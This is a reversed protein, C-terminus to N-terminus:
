GAGYFAEAHLGTRQRVLEAIRDVEEDELAEVFSEAPRRAVTYVQVYRIAGGAGTIECLRDTYAYLETADPVRGDLRMFLSQIVVPRVRAAAVINDVVHQLPYNARNVTKFYAETGADLKAWIEGHNDDLIALSAAVEPRTLYCADTLLIIRTETLGAELRLAAAIELCERFYKCTTPEGDGSFALDRIGRLEQPVGSFGPDDFLEGSRAIAILRALEEHLRNPDVERVPPSASRDVQCYICGFNCAGDPNLNIGISLGGSRRSIVPYVYANRRWDRPHSQYHSLTLRKTDKITQGRPLRM